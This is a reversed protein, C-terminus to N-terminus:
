YVSSVIELGKLGNLLNSIALEKMKQRTQWTATGLHPAITLNKQQLLPHDRPLPEPETVDLGAAYIQNTQLAQTIADTNVVAGRAVNVLVASSKMLKFEEFSIMDRTHDNLPVVVVIFDSQALLEKKSVYTAQINAADLEDSKKPTRNHYLIKMNFGAARRAVETGIRGMGLIGITSNHVESGLMFSSEFKLFEPSRAYQDGEILRRSAALLLTFAMDATTESLIGPTNAVPVSRARADEVNIHDVGVGCNSIIKLGPFQDMYNGDITPHGFVLIGQVEEARKSADTMSICEVSDKLDDIVHTHMETLIILPLSM